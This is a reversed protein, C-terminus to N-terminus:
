LVKDAEKAKEASGQVAYWREEPRGGTSALTEVRALGRELLVGLARDIARKSRHGGLLDNLQTRSLGDPNRRLARLFTDATADGLSDGFICM